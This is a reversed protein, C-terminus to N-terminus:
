SSRHIRDPMTPFDTPQIHLCESTTLSRKLPRAFRRRHRLRAPGSHADLAYDELKVQDADIVVRWQGRASLSGVYIIM